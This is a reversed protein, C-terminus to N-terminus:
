KCDLIYNYICCMFVQKYLKLEKESDRITDLYQEKEQEFENSLDRIESLAQIHQTTKAELQAQLLDALTSYRQEANSKEAAQRELKRQLEIEKKRSREAQLKSQQEKEQQVKSGDMLAEQLLKLSAEVLEKEKIAAEQLQKYELAKAEQQQVSSSLESLQNLM